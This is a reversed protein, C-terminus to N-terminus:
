PGKQNPKTIIKGMTKSSIDFIIFHRHVSLPYWTIATAWMDRQTQMLDALFTNFLTAFIYTFQFGCVKNDTFYVIKVTYTCRGNCLIARSLGLADATNTNMTEVVRHKVKKLVLDIYSFSNIYIGSYM